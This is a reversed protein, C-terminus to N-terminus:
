EPVARGPVEHDPPSIVPREQREEMAPPAPRLRRVVDADQEGAQERKVQDTESPHEEAAVRQRLGSRDQFRQAAWPEAAPAEGGLREDHDSETGAQVEPRGGGCEAAPEGGLRGPRLAEGVRGAHHRDRQERGARCLEDIEPESTRRTPVITPTQTTMSMPAAHTAAASRPERAADRPSAAKTSRTRMRAAREIGWGPAARTMQSPSEVSM